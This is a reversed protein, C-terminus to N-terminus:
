LWHILSSVISSCHYQKSTESQVLRGESSKQPMKRFQRNLGLLFNRQIHTNTLECVYLTSTLDFLIVSSFIHNRGSGVPRHAVRIYQSFFAATGKVRRRWATHHWHWPQLASAEALRHVCPDSIYCHCRLWNRREDLGFTQSSTLPNSILRCPSIKSLVGFILSCSFFETLTLTNAFNVDLMPHSLSAYEFNDSSDRLM